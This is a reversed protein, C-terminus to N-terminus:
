ELDFGDSLPCMKAHMSCCDNCFRAGAEDAEDEEASLTSRPGTPGNDVEDSDSSPNFLADGPNQSPPAGEADDCDHEAWVDFFAVDFADDFAHMAEEEAADEPSIPNLREYCISDAAAGGAEMFIREVYEECSAESNSEQAKAFYRRMDASIFDWTRSDLLQALSHLRGSAYWNTSKPLWRLLAELGDYGRRQILELMTGEDRLLAEEKKAASDFDITPEPDDEPAPAPVVLRLENEDKNHGAQFFAERRQAPTWTRPHGWKHTECAPSTELSIGSNNEPHTSWWLSCLTVASEYEM